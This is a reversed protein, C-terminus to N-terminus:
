ARCLPMALRAHFGRETEPFTLTGRHPFRAALRQSVNELGIGGRDNSAIRRGHGDDFVDIVLEDRLTSARITLVMPQGPGRMGHKLSNEVLPQLILGPVLATELTTPLDVSVRFHDAFRVEEIGLYLRQLAVEDALTVDALPDHALSLRFFQSLQIVMEEAIDNKRDLILAAIANLTNHLFHPNIQYRLARMQGEQAQLRVRVLTRERRRAESDHLLALLGAAWIAFPWAWFITAPILYRPILPLPDLNAIHPFLPAMTFRLISEFPISMALVLLIAVLVQTSFTRTTVRELVLRMLLCHAAGLLVICADLPLMEVPYPYQQREFVVYGKAMVMAATWFAIAALATLGWSRFAPLRNPDM